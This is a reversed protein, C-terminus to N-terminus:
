STVWFIEFRAQVELYKLSLDGIETFNRIDTFDRMDTFDRIDTFSDIM